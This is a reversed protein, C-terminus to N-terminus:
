GTIPTQAIEDLLGLNRQMNVQCWAVEIGEEEDYGKFVAKFAGHGLQHNFQWPLPLRPLLYARAHRVGAVARHACAAHRPPAGRAARSRRAIAHGGAGLGIARAASRTKNLPETQRVRSYRGDPSREVIEETSGNM